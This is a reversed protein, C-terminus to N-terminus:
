AGGAARPAFLPMDDAVRKRAMAAFEPNLEVGVFHRGLHKASLAATGAGTQGIGFGVLATDGEWGSGFNTAGHQRVLSEIAARTREVSVTTDAAFTM